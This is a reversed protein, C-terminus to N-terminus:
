YTHGLTELESKLTDATIRGRGFSRVIGEKDIFFTTPMGSVGYLDAVNGSRDLVAPYTAETETLMRAAADKSEMLNVLLFVVEGDEAGLAQYAEEFDPMESRCPGCWTAFWNLVVTKGAFDSLKRTTEGDRADLLLFDPAPEGLEPSFSDIPGVDTAAEEGLFLWGGIVIAAVAAAGLALWGVAERLEIQRKMLCLTADTKTEHRSSDAFTAAMRRALAGGSTAPGMHRQITVPPSTLGGTAAEPSPPPGKPLWISGM